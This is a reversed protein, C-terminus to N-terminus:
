WFGAMSLRSVHCEPHSSDAQFRFSPRHVHAEAIAACGVKGQEPLNTAGAPCRM